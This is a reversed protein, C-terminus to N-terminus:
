GYNLASGSLFRRRAACRTGEQRAPGGSVFIVPGEAQNKELPAGPKKTAKKTGTIFATGVRVKRDFFRGRGM